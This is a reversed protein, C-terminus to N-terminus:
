SVQIARAKGNNASPLSIKLLGNEFKSEINEVDIQSTLQFTRHVRDTDLEKLLYDDDEDVKSSKKKEATIRLMDDEVSISIDEKSYGPLGVELDYKDKNKKINTAPWKTMWGDEFASRGLFHSPDIFTSYREGMREFVQNKRKKLSM